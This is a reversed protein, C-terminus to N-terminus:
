APARGGNIVLAYTQYTHKRERPEFPLEIGSLNKFAENYLHAIKRRRELIGALRDVQAIGVAAQLDSLRYNFGMEQYVSVGPKEMRPRAVGESTGGM